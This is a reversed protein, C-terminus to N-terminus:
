LQQSVYAFDLVNARFKVKKCYKLHLIKQELPASPNLPPCPGRAGGGQSRAQFALFGIRRYPVMQNEDMWGDSWLCAKSLSSATMLAILSQIQLASVFNTWPFRSITSVDILFACICLAEIFNHQSAMFNNQYTLKKYTIIISCKGNMNTNLHLTQVAKTHVALALRLFPDM